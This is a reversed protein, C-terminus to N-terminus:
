LTEDLFIKATDSISEVITPHPLMVSNIDDIKISNKIAVCITGIIETASYGVVSTGLITGGNDVIIKVFGDNMGIASAKGSAKFFTKLVKHEINKEKVERESLGVSAVEPETYICSPVYKLDYIIPRNLIHNICNRAQHYAVHALMPYGAAVDGIAYINDINTQFNNNIIIRGNNAKEVGLKEVGLGDSNAVMGNTFLVYESEVVESKGNKEYNIKNIGNENDVLKINASAIVKIGSRTFLRELTKGCESDMNPLLNDFYEMITVTSGLANFIYAFEVGMAGGGIIAISKPVENLFLADSSTIIKNKAIEDKSINPKLFRSFDAPKAGTAIVIKDSKYESGNVNITNKDIISAEGSIIDVKNKNLLFEVGKSVSDTVARVDNSIEEMNISFGDIHIGSKSNKIKKILSARSILAKTPICGINLCTGGVKKKEIMATKLGGKAALSAITYGAPGGGIVIIDYNM